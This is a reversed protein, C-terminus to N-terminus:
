ASTEDSFVVQAGMLDGLLDRVAPGALLAVSPSGGRGRAGGGALTYATHVEQCIM